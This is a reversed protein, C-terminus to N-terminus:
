REHPNSYKLLQFQPDPKLDRWWQRIKHFRILWGMKFDIWILQNNWANWMRSNGRWRAARYEIERIREDM